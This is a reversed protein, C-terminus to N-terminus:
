TSERTCQVDDCFELVPFLVACFRAHLPRPLLHVSGQGQRWRPTHLSSCKGLESLSSKTSRASPLPAMEKVETVQRWIPTPPRATSKTLARLFDGFGDARSMRM